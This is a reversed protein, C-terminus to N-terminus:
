SPTSVIAKNIDAVNTCPDYFRQHFWPVHYFSTRLCSAIGQTTVLRRFDKALYWATFDSLVFRGGQTEGNAALINSSAMIQIPLVM